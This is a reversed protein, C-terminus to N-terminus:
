QRSTAQRVRQHRTPGAKRAHRGAWRQRSPRAPESSSGTRWRRRAQHGATRGAAPLGLLEARRPRVVHRRRVEQTTALVTFTHNGSPDSYNLASGTNYDSPATFTAQLRKYNGTLTAVSPQSLQAPLAITQAAMTHFSQEVATTSSGSTVDITIQHYDSSRQQAAPIGYAVFAANLGSASYMSAPQCSTGSLYAMVMTIPNTGAGTVTMTGSAPSQGSRAGLLNLLTISGGNAISQDRRLIFRDAAAPGVSPDSRYGLLDSVGSAVGSITFSTGPVGVITRAGGVSITAQQNGTLGSYTGNVSNAGNITCFTFTRSLEAKTEFTANVDTSSSIATYAFGGKASSVTFLYVGNTSTLVTWPGTGDQYAFWVPPNSCPSFDVVTGVGPGSGSTVTVTLTATQDASGSVSGHITLPYTGIALGSGANLTLTSTTGATATPSFSTTLLAPAGVVSLTVTGSFGSGQNINVVSTVSGGPAMSVTAPQMSITYSGADPTTTTSNGSGCAALATICIGAILRSVLQTGSRTSM